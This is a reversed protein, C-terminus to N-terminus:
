LSVSLTDDLKTDFAALGDGDFAVLLRSRRSKPATEAESKMEELAAAASGSAVAKYNLM